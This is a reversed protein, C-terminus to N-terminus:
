QGTIAITVGTQSAAGGGTVIVDAPGAVAVGPV